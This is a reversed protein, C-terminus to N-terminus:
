ARLEEALKGEPAVGCGKEILDFIEKRQGANYHGANMHYRRNESTIIAVEHVPFLRNKEGGHSQDIPEYGLDEVYGYRVINKLRLTKDVLKLDLEGQRFLFMARGEGTRPRVYAPFAIRLWEGDIVTKARLYLYVYCAALAFIIYSFFSFGAMFENTTHTIQGYLTYCLDVFSAFGLAYLVIYGLCHPRFRKM